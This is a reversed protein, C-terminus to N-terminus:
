VRSTTQLKKLITEKVFIFRRDFETNCVTIYEINFEELIKKIETDIITQGDKNRVGDEEFPLIPPFYFTTVKVNKFNYITKLFRENLENVYTSSNNRHRSYALTDIPSREAIIFRNYSGLNKFFQCMLESTIIIQNNNNAGIDVKDIVGKKILNRVFESIISYNYTGQQFFYNNLARLMTTKGTSGAGTFLFLQNM